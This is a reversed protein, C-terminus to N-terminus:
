SYKTMCLKIGIKYGLLSFHMPILAVGRSLCLALTQVLDLELFQDKKECAAEKFLNLNDSHSYDKKKLKKKQYRISSFTLGLRWLARCCEEPSQRLYGQYRAFLLTGLDLGGEAACLNRM